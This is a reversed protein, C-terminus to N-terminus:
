TINRSVGKAPRQNKRVVNDQKRRFNTAPNSLRREGIGVNSRDILQGLPAIYEVKQRLRQSWRDVAVLLDFLGDDEQQKSAGLLVQRVSSM